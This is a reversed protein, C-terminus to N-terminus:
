RLLNGQKRIPQIHTLLHRPEARVELRKTVSQSALGGVADPLSQPKQQLLQQSLRIRGPAFGVVRRDQPSGPTFGNGIM